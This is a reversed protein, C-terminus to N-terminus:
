EAYHTELLENILSNLASDYSNVLNVYEGKKNKYSPMSLFYSSKKNSYMVSCNIAVGFVNLVAFDSDRETDYISLTVGMQLPYRKVNEEEVAQTLVTEIDYWKINGKNFVEKKTEKTENTKNKKM